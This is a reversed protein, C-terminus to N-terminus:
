HTTQERSEQSDLREKADLVAGTPMAYTQM